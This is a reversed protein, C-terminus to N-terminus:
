QVRRCAETGERPDTDSPQVEPDSNAGGARRLSRQHEIATAVLEPRQAACPRMLEVCHDRCQRWGLGPGSWM